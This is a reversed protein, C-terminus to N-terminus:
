EDDDPKRYASYLPFLMWVSAAIIFLTALNNHKNRIEDLNIELLEVRRELDM